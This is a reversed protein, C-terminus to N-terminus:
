DYLKIKWTFIPLFTAFLFSLFLLSQAMFVPFSNVPLLVGILISKAFDPSPFLLLGAFLGIIISLYANKEKLKKIDQFEASTAEKETIFREESISYLGEYEDEYIDGADYVLDLFKQVVKKIGIRNLMEARQAPTRKNADFPVICWAVLNNKDYLSQGKLQNVNLLVLLTLTIIHLINRPLNM